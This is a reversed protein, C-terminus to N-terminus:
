RQILPRNLGQQPAFAQQQGFAGPQQQQPTSSNQLTQLKEKAEENYKVDDSLTAMMQSINTNINSLNQVTSQLYTTMEDVSEAQSIGSASQKAAQYTASLDGPDKCSDGIEKHLKDFAQTVTSSLQGAKLATLFFASGLLGTPGPTAAGSLAAPVAAAAAAFAEPNLENRKKNCCALLAEKVKKSETEAQAVHQQYAKALPESIEQLDMLDMDEDINKDAMAYLAEIWLKDSDKLAQQNLQDLKKRFLIRTDLSAIEDGQPLNKIKKRINEIEDQSESGSLNKSFWELLALKEEDLAKKANKLDKKARKRGNKRFWAALESTSDMTKKFNAWPANAEQCESTDIDSAPTVPSDVVKGFADYRKQAENKKKRAKKVEKAKAADAINKSDEIKENTEKERAILEREEQIKKFHTVAEDGAVGHDESDNSTGFAGQTLVLTVGLVWMLGDRKMNM